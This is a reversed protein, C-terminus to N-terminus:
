VPVKNLDNDLIKILSNEQISMCFWIIKMENGM